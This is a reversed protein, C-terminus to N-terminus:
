RSDRGLLHEASSPPLKLSVVPLASPHQECGPCVCIWSIDQLEPRRGSMLTDRFLSRAKHSRHTNPSVSIEKREANHSEMHRSRNEM